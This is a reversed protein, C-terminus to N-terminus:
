SELQKGTFKPNRKEQLAKVGEHLDATPYCVSQATAETLYADELGVEQKRRLTQVLTRVSVPGSQTIQGALQLASTLACDSVSSVLGLRVAEEAGVVRGTLLLDAAVQCINM